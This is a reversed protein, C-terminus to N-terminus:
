RPRDVNLPLDVVVTTGDRPRSAITLQAGIAAARERMSQLGYGHLQGSEPQFGRGNDGISIRLRGERCSTAVRVVTADAHKRVNNLAEQVIRLLEAQCRPSLEPVTADATVEVRLGCSDGFEEVYGSLMDVLSGGLVDTRMALVAQRANAIGSDVVTTVEAVLAAVEPDLGPVQAAREIKLKAFWLDQALGDHIERALRAREELAAGVAETERLTELERNARRLARIDARAEAQVGLLLTAYFALRLVDATTVLSTYTGPYIAGHLQSFAALVLGVALYAWRISDGERYRRVCLVGALVFLGAGALQLGTGLMTVGPLGSPVVPDARLLVLGDPGVLDPLRSGVLVVIVAMAGFALTPALGVMGARVGTPISAHGAAAALVLTGAVILRGLGWIYLPAQGPSELSMGLARDLGVLPVAITVAGSAFLALFAAAELLDAPRRHEQFRIWGLAAVAAAVITTTTNLVTDLGPAVIVFQLGPAVLLLVSGATVAAVTVLLVWRLPEPASRREIPTSTMPM